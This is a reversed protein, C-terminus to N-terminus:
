ITETANWTIQGFGIAEGSSDLYFVSFTHKGLRTVSVTWGRETDLAETFEDGDYKIDYSDSYSAPAFSYTGDENDTYKLAYEKGTALGLYPVVFGTGMGSPTPEPEPNDDDNNEFPETSWLPTAVATTSTIKTGGYIKNGDSDVWGGFYLGEKELKPLNPWYLKSDEETGEVTVSELNSFNGTITALESGIVVLETVNEKNEDSIARYLDSAARLCLTIKGAKQPLSNEGLSRCSTPLIVETVNDAKVFANSNIAMIGDHIELTGTLALADDPNEFGNIVAVVYHKGDETYTAPYTMEPSTFTVQAFYGEFEELTSFAFFYDNVTTPVASCSVASFLALALLFVSLIKQLKREKTARGNM